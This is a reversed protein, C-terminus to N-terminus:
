FRGAIWERLLNDHSIKIEDEWRQGEQRIEADPVAMADYVARRELDDSMIAFIYLGGSEPMFYGALSTAFDLSGTKAWVRQLLGPEVLRKQLSGSWGNAPLLQPMAHKELGFALLQVLQSPTARANPDLGSHNTIHFGQWSVEGLRSRLDALLVAASEALSQPEAKLFRSTALGLTEALQNNSYVLMDEVLESVPKSQIILLRRPQAKPAGRTPVPLEIGMEAAIRRLSRAAHMGTDRVPIPRNARQKLGKAIQWAPGREVLPPNTFFGEKGGHRLNVRGFALSLAGIGANYPADLPQKPNIEPLRLFAEDAVLFRGVVARIGSKRIALAMALLDDLDLEVDGQGRLILDGELTGDVVKGSTSISTELRHDPGLRDLAALATVLKMTSAPMFSETASRSALTQGSDADVVVYGTRTGAFTAEGWGLILSVLAISYWRFQNM